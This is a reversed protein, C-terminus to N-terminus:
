MYSRRLYSIFPILLWRGKKSIWFIGIKEVFAVIKHGTKCAHAGSSLCLLGSAYRWGGEGNRLVSPCDLIPVTLYCIKLYCIKPSPFVSRCPGSPFCWNQLTEEDDQTCMVSCCIETEEEAWWLNSCVRCSGWCITDGLQVQSALSIWLSGM